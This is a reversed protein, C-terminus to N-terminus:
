AAGAFPNSRGLFWQYMESNVVEDLQPEVKAALMVAGDGPTEGPHVIERLQPVSNM